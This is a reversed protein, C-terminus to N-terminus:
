NPPFGNSGTSGADEGQTIFQRLGPSVIPLGPPTAADPDHPAPGVYEQDTLEGSRTGAMEAPTTYEWSLYGSNASSNTGCNVHVPTAYDSM